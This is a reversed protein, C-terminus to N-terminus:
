QREERVPSLPSVIVKEYMRLLSKPLHACQRNCLLSLDSDESASPRFKSYSNWYSSHVATMSSSDHVAM